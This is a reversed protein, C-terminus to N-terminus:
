PCAKVFRTLAIPIRSRGIAGRLLGLFTDEALDLLDAFARRQKAEFALDRLALDTERPEACCDRCNCTAGTGVDRSRM